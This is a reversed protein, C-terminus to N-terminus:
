SKGGCGVGEDTAVQVTIIFGHLNTGHLASMAAKASEDTAMTVMAYGNPRGTKSGRVLKVDMVFGHAGFLDQLSTAAVDEALNGVYLRNQM